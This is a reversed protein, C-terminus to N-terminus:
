VGREVVASHVVKAIAVLRAKDLRGSLAYGLPGDVWFFVGVGEQQRYSFASERNAWVARRVYLTIRQGSADQYMFQAAMRDTSPLLRGGILEFGLGDLDPAQIDTHMRESLWGTLVERKSAVIEVPYRNDSVYMSHAFLAPQVLNVLAASGTAAGSRDHLLWGGAGSVLMAGALAAAQLLGPWRRSKVEGPSPVLTAPLPENLIPDYLRHLDQNLQRYQSVRARAKPNAALWAEVQLRRRDDLEGDVYAHLDADNVVSEDDNM